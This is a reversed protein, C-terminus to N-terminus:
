SYGVERVQNHLASRERKKQFFSTNKQTARLFVYQDQVDYKPMFLSTRDIYLAELFSERCYNVLFHIHPHKKEPLKLRIVNWYHLYTIKKKQTLLYGNWHWIFGGYGM